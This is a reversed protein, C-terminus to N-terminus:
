IENGIMNRFYKILFELLAKDEEITKFLNSEGHVKEPFSLGNQTLLELFDESPSFWAGGKMVMEWALLLDVIEKEIWISKGGTRGYRIPYPITLNTKENPSKKVTVKAWHGVPPNKQVDITKDSPNQLILDGKFRPEFELIWNAFHLLANGGTASTQRIPAKSYPDLKIDARVQSIFIAMHGRKALAISLKKMFTAAIVAGGAVKSSEEFSKDMDGKAILGDVADLLFCFKIKEENNSVLKRMADVVTEYINSEFVFCTGAVWEEPSFVFKVGSRKQMEPSLRGEAKIYFGKSNPIEVLFNKMVELAESTNHTLIYDKTVYLSDLSSVKICVSEEKGVLKVDKIFHCFNETRPSLNKLKRTLSCPNLEQPLYFSVIFCNKCIIRKGDKNKYTGQKFRKRGIGGLSRVIDLVDDALKESVSYFLIESKKENLYGDTDILGQLLSLRQNISTTKYQEPIFKNESKQGFLNLEKLQTLLSNINNESSIRYSIGAEETQKLSLGLYDTNIISKVKEILEKDNNTLIVSATIGGDGLLVGLLYPNIPVEKHGFNIPKVIRVSHNINSGYRLTNIISGLSKVSKDGRRRETFNSTEWLHEIGCRTVSGDDFKVEYVDKMGQPYVALVKQPQGLSDIVEDGVKLEGIKRWGHPTLVPESIPQEKGGENMGVFRHLGPGFGGGLQLDLQLSGSSVKYDVTEEFNYHDEANQKLFTSLIDSSTTKKEETTKTKAM